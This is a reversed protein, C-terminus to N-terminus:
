GEIKGKCNKGTVGHGSFAARQRPLLILFIGQLSVNNRCYYGNLLLQGPELKPSKSSGDM